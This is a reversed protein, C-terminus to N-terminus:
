KLTINESPPLALWFFPLSHVFIYLFVIFYNVIKPYPVTIYTVTASM